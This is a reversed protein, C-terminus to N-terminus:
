RATQLEAYFPIHDSGIDNLSKRELVTLDDTYLLHDIPVRLFAPWMSPWSPQIGFGIRSDKLLRNATVIKFWYTWPTTNLDGILLTPGEEVSLRKSLERLQENRLNSYNAGIPPLPHTAWLVVEQDNHAFIGRLSPLGASGVYEIDIDIPIKSLIAIGFNDDQPVLKQFKFDVFEGELYDKWRENIEVLVVIDPDVKRVLRGLKEHAQNATYINAYFLKLTKLAYVGPKDSIPLYPAISVLCYVAVLASLIARKFAKGIILLPTALLLVFFSQVRFHNFLDFFWNWRGLFGLIPGGVGLIFLIWRLEGQRIRRNLFM